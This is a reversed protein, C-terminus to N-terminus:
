WMPEKLSLICWFGNEDASPLKRRGRGGNRSPLPVREMNRERKVSEADRRKYRIGVEM